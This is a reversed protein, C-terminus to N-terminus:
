LCTQCIFNVDVYKRNSTAKFHVANVRSPDNELALARGPAGEKGPRVRRERKRHWVSWPHGGHANSQPYGTRGAAALSRGAGRAGSVGRRAAAMQLERRVEMRGNRAGTRQGGDQTDGGLDRGGGGQL